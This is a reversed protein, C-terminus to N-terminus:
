ITVVYGEFAESSIILINTGSVKTHAIVEEYETGNKRMVKVPYKGSATLTASYYGGTGATFNSATFDIKGLKAVKAQDEATYDKTSLGKGAEATVKNLFVADTSKVYNADNNLQSLKTPVSVGGVGESVATAVQSATQYGADNTFASVNTPVTPIEDNLASFNDNVKKIEEDVFGGLKIQQINAM